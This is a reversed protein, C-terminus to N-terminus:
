AKGLSLNATNKQTLLDARLTFRKGLVPFAFALGNLVNVELGQGIFGLLPHKFECLSHSGGGRAANRPIGEEVKGAGDRGVIYFTHVLSNFSATFLDVGIFPLNKSSM